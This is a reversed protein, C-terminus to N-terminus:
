HSHGAHLVALMLLYRLDHASFDYASADSRLASHRAQSQESRLSRNLFALFQNWAQQQVGGRRIEEMSTVFAHPQGEYVTIEHPVGAQQLGAEFAQVESLPISVDAGGFIGLVPGPLAALQGADGIVSGYFIATAAIRSNTLSYRLSAGGGFCFGMIAIRDARVDPQSSLWAFVADLDANIQAPPNSVVQFIARPVLSTTSGRFLDPAVVIYGEEALADAKGLIEPKLGWFEHIMIVAPHPGPAQPRAVYARVEPGGANPIRTHALADLRGQGLLGDGAILAALALVAVGVFAGAGILIRRIWKAM